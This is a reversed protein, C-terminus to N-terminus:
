IVAHKGCFMTTCMTHHIAQSLERRDPYEGKQLAIKGKPTIRFSCIGGRESQPILKKEALGLHVCAATVGVTIAKSQLKRHWRNDNLVELFARARTDTM